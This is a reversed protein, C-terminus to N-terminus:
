PPPRTSWLGAGHHCWGGSGVWGCCSPRGRTRSVGFFSSLNRILLLFTLGSSKGIAFCLSQEGGCEHMSCLWFLAYLMYRFHMSCLCTNSFAYQMFLYWVSTNLIVTKEQVYVKQFLNALRFGFCCSYCVTIYKEQFSSMPRRSAKKWDCFFRLM